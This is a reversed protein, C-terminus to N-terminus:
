FRLLDDITKKEAAPYHTCTESALEVLLSVARSGFFFSFVPAREKAFTVITTGM